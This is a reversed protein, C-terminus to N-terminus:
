ARSGMVVSPFLEDIAAVYKLNHRMRGHPVIGASFLGEIFEVLLAIPL